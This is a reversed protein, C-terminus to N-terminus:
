FHQQIRLSFRLDPFVLFGLCGLTGCQGKRACFNERCELCLFVRQVQLPLSRCGWARPPIHSSTPTQPCARMPESRPRLAAPWSPALGLLSQPLGRRARPENWFQLLLGVEAETALVLLMSEPCCRNPCIEKVFTSVALPWTLCGKRLTVM